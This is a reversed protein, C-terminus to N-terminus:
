RWMDLFQPNSFKHFNGLTLLSKPSLVGLRSPNVGSGIKTKEKNERHLITVM